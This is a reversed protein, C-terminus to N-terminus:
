RMIKEIEIGLERCTNLIDQWSKEDVPIGEKRRNEMMRHEKEGPLLVENFGTRVPSSKIEAILRDVEEKFDKVPVFADINIATMLTGQGKARSGTGSLNLAGGLIDIVLNIGYGKYTGFPLLSGGTEWFEGINKLTLDYGKVPNGQRDILWGEPIPKNELLLTRVHGQAVITTAFDLVIPYAKGAPVAISMPNTGTVPKTGGWPACVPGERAVAIGIMDNKVAIMAYYFLNTIWEGNVVSCSAIGQKRAKDVAIDMAKKASVPGWAGGPDLLATAPTERLIKMETKSEKKSLPRTHATFYPLVRVGHSDIGRLSGTVLVNTIIEADEESNGSAKLMEIGLRKWKREPYTPM